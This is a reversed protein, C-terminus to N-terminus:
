AIVGFAKPFDHEFFFYKQLTQMHGSGDKNKIVLVWTTSYKEDEYRYPEIKIDKVNTAFIGGGSLWGGDIAKHIARTLTDQKTM